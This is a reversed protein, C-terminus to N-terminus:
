LGGLKVFNKKFLRWPGNPVELCLAEVINRTADPLVSEAADKKKKKGEEKKAEEKQEAKRLARAEYYAGYYYYIIATDLEGPM